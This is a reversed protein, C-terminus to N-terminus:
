HEHATRATLRKVRILLRAYEVLTKFIKMKSDGAKLDYRLFLPVQVIKPKLPELKLLLELIAAFGRAELFPTYRRIAQQLLGIRYLRYFSTYDKIGIPFLAMFTWRAGHSLLSRHWPVGAQGGGPVFRSAIVMDAGSATAELMSLILDPNQTNDADMTVVMDEPGYHACAYQIGTSIAQGAGRNVEHTVLTVPWQAALASVIPGTGDRSGDDVVVVHHDTQALSKGIREILEGIGEAENYAPLVVVVM